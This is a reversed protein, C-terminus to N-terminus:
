KQLASLKKNVVLKEPVCVPPLVLIPYIGWLNNVSNVPLYCNKEYFLVFWCHAFYMTDRLLLMRLSLPSLNSSTVAQM